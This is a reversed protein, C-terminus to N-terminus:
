DSTFGPGLSRVLTDPRGLISLVQIQMLLYGVRDILVYLWGRGCFQINHLWDVSTLRRLPGYLHFDMLGSMGGWKKAWASGHRCLLFLRACEGQWYAPCQYLIDLQDSRVVHHSVVSEWGCSIVWQGM